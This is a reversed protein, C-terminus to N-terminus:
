SPMNVGSLFGGLHGTLTVAGVTLAELLLRAVRRHPEPQKRAHFHWYWVATMLVASTCGMILHLLLVGGPKQGDLQLQWALFGTAIVPPASIAAALFNYYAVIALRARSANQALFDFIVGVIFLGIPFHVLAVHQAHRAFLVTRPDFPRM